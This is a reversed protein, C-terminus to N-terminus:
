VKVRQTQDFMHVLPQQDTILTFPRACVVLVPEM